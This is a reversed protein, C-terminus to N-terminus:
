VVIASSLDRALAGLLVVGYCKGEFVIDCMKLFGIKVGPFIVM